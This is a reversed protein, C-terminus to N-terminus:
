ELEGGSVYDVEMPVHMSCSFRWTNVPDVPM